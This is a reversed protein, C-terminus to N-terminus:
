VDVTGVNGDGASQRSPRLGLEVAAAGGMGIRITSSQGRELRAVAEFLPTAAFFPPPQGPSSRFDATVLEALAPANRSIADGRRELVLAVAGEGEARLAARCEPLGALATELVDDWADYVVAVAKDARGTRLLDVAVLVALAGASAAGTLTITAGTFDHHRCILTAGLHMGHDLADSPLLGDPNTALRSAIAEVAQPSGGLTTGAVVAVRDGAIAATGALARAAAVAALQAARGCYHYKRDPPYHDRIDFACRVEGPAPVLRAAGTVVVPGRNAAGAPTPRASTAARVLVSTNAGGGGCANSLAADFRLERTAASEVACRLAPDPTVLGINGHVFGHKMQLVTAIVEAIASAGALHTTISKTSNVAPHSPAPFLDAVAITEILDIGKTGPAHASVYGIDRPEAAGDRLAEAMARRLGSGDANLTIAGAGADCVCGFGDLWAVPAAGDLRNDACLVLAAAGDGLVSGDRDLDFPRLARGIFGSREAAWITTLKAIDLGVVLAQGCRGLRIWDLALGLAINGSACANTAVARPGELGLVAALHDAVAGNPFRRLAAALGPVDRGAVIDPYHTESEESFGAITGVLLAAGPGLGGSTDAAERAAAEAMRMAKGPSDFGDALVRGVLAKGRPVPVGALTSLTRRSNRLAEAFAEVGVAAPTIVGMGTIAVRPLPWGM